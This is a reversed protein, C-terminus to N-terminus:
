PSTTMRCTTPPRHGSPGLPRMDSRDNTPLPLGMSVNVPAALLSRPTCIGPMLSMVQRTDRRVVRPKNIYSTRSRMFASADVPYMNVVSPLV